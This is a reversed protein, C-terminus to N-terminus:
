KNSGNRLKLEDRVKKNAEKFEKLKRQLQGIDNKIERIGQKTVKAFETLRISVGPQLCMSRLVDVPIMNYPGDSLLYYALAIDQSLDMGGGCLTLFLEGSDNDEVLTCNTKTVVSLIKKNSYGGYKGWVPYIYNMMPIADDESVGCKECSGSYSINNVKDNSRSDMDTHKCNDELVERGLNRYKVGGTNKDYNESWDFSIATEM